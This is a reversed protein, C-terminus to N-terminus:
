FSSQYGTGKCQSCLVLGVGKCVKCERPNLTRGFVDRKGPTESYLKDRPTPNKGDGECAFCRIGGTGQCLSCPVPEKKMGAYLAAGAAALM